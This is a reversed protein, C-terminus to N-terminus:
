RASARPVPPWTEVGVEAYAQTAADPESDGVADRLLWGVCLGVASVVQMLLHLPTVAIAFALGRTRAFFVYAPSDLAIAGLLVALAEVLLNPERVFEASFGVACLAAFVPAVSRSLTFVSDSPVAARTRQYGLSRAILASRNWVERILSIVNRRRLVITDIDKAAMVGRGLTELRSGLEVGELPVDGFRWEDYMGASLFVDRRIAACPSAVDASSGTHRQEGFRLVLNWYQSVLNTSAFAQQHSASIADLAPHDRLIRVMAPLTDPRVMVDPDVFALIEGRALEAGRNRAYGSGSTRGSLRVVTDAYRAAIEASGDNSADDVVILEYQDRPLESHVIATLAHALTASNDRVPVIVSLPRPVSM